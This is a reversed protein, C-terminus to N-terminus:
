LLVAIQCDIAQKGHFQLKLKRGGCGDVVVM